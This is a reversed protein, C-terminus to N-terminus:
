GEEVTGLMDSLGLMKAPNTTLAALAQDATLGAEIM